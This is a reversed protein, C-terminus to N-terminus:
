ITKKNYKYLIKLRQLTVPSRKYRGAKKDGKVFWFRKGSKLNDVTGNDFVNERLPQRESETLLGRKVELDFMERYERCTMGHVQTIHGGVKRYHNHCILCEIKNKAPKDSQNKRRWYERQYEAGGIRRYQVKNRCKQSCYIQSNSQVVFEKNCEKCIKM